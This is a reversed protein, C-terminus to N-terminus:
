AFRRGHRSSGSAVQFFDAGKEGLHFRQALIDLEFAGLQSATPPDVRVLRLNRRANEIEGMVDRQAGVVEGVQLVPEGRAPERREAAAFAVDRLREIRENRGEPAQAAFRARGIRRRHQRPRARRFQLRLGVPQEALPLFAAGARPHHRGQRGLRRRFRLEDVIQDGGAHIARADIAGVVVGFDPPSHDLIHAPRRARSSRGQRTSISMAPGFHRMRLTFAGGFVRRKRPSRITRTSSSRSFVLSGIAKESLKGSSTSWSETPESTNM